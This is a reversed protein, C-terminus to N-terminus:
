EGSDFSLKFYRTLNSSCIKETKFKYKDAAVAEWKYYADPVEDPHCGWDDFCLFLPDSRDVLYPEIVSLAQATSSGLDADFHVLAISKTKLYLAEKVAPDDFWGQILSCNSFNKLNNDLYNKVGEVSTDNFAHRSWITSSEPLGEFSDIGIMQRNTKKGFSRDILALGYGQWTGFEVVDGQLELQEILSAVLKMNLFRGCQHEAERYKSLREYDSHKLNAVENLARRGKFKRNIKHAKELAIHRGLFDVLVPCWNKLIDKM